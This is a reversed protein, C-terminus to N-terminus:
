KKTKRRAPFAVARNRNKDGIYSCSDERERQKQKKKCTRAPSKKRWNSQPKSETKFKESNSELSDYLAFRRLLEGANGVDHRHEIAKERSPVIEFDSIRFGFDSETKSKKNTNKSFTHDAM